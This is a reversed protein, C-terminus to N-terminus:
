RSFILPAERRSPSLLSRFAGRPCRDIPRRFPPLAAPILDSRPGDTARPPVGRDATNAHGSALSRSITNDPGMFPLQSLAVVRDRCTAPGNGTAFTVTAIVM